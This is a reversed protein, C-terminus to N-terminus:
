FGLSLTTLCMPQYGIMCAEHSLQVGPKLANWCVTTLELVLEQLLYEIAIAFNWSWISHM